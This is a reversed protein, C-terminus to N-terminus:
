KDEAIDTSVRLMQERLEPPLVAVGAPDMLGRRALSLVRARNSDSWNGKPRRPTFRNLTRDADYRREIGDIWGFCVAEEVAEEYRIGPRPSSKKFVLLHVERTVEHNELLWQRWEERGEVALPHLDGAVGANAAGEKRASNGKM